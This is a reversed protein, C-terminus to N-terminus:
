LLCIFLQHAVSLLRFRGIVFPHFDLISGSSNHTSNTEASACEPKLKSSARGWMNALAGRNGSSKNDSVKKINVPLVPVKEEDQHAPKSSQERARTIHSINKVDKVVDPSQLKSSEQVRKLHPQPLIPSQNALNKASSGIAGAIKVQADM